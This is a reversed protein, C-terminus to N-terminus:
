RCGWVGPKDAYVFKFGLSVVKQGTSAGGSYFCDIRLAEREIKHQDSVNTVLVPSM